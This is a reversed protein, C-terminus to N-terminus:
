HRLIKCLCSEDGQSQSDGGGAYVRLSPPLLALLAVWWLRRRGGHRDILAVAEHCHGAGETSVRIPKSESLAAADVELEIDEIGVNRHTSPHHLGIRPDVRFVCLLQGLRDLGGRSEKISRLM